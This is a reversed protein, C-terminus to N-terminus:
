YHAPPETGAQQPGGKAPPKGEVPCSSALGKGDIIVRSCIQACLEPTKPGPPRGFVSGDRTLCQCKCDDARANDVVFAVLLIVAGIASLYKM